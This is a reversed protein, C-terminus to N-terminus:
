MRQRLSEVVDEVSVDEGAHEAALEAAETSLVVDETVAAAEPAAPAPAAPAQAVVPAAPAAETALAVYQTEDFVRRATVYRKSYYSDNMKSISVGRSSSSHAFNGDGMYIGVHSIGKGDTNFFVLDGPRLEDKGVKAGVTAQDASRRPLDIGLKEFVYGTFGSCDFGKTTTGGYKYDIGVLQDVATELETAAAAGGAFAGFGISLALVLSAAKKM